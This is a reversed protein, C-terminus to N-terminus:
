RQSAEIQFEGNKLGNDALLELPQGIKAEIEALAGSANKELASIIDPHAVLTPMLGPRARVEALVAELAKLARSLPSIAWGSPCMSCPDCLIHSLPPRRRPRTIELLGTKTIGHIRPGAPDDTMAARMRDLVKKESGTKRMAMLDIVIVGSLNRLRMQRAGEVVAEINTELAIDSARGSSAPKAAGSVNVDIATLASTEEIILSGGSPLAVVPNLVGDVQDSINFARFIDDNIGKGHHFIECKANATCQAADDTIIKEVFKLGSDKLYKELASQNIGLHSPVKANKKMELLEHWKNQLKELEALMDAPNAGEAASRVIITNETKDLLGEAIELLRARESKNNIRSSVRATKGGGPSLVMMDGTINIRRTIKAGKAERADHLVQVMIAEGEHVYDSIKDTPEDPGYHMQLRADGLGLFADKDQGIDVFAAEMAPVVRKVRGVFVEGVSQGDGSGDKRYVAFDILRSKEDIRAIRTEGPRTRVLITQKNM